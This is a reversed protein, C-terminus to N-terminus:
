EALVEIPFAGTDFDSHGDHYISFIVDTSGASEGHIHFSWQGDEEHQEVEAIEDDDVEWDLSLESEHDLDIRDGDDDLFYITILSTEEGEPVEIEGEIDGNEYTAIVEGNMELEAAVPDAHEEEDDDSVPNGCANLLLISFLTLVFLASFRKPYFYSM